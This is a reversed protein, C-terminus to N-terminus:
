RSGIAELYMSPPRGVCKANCDLGQIGMCASMTRPIIQHMLRDLAVYAIEIYSAIRGFIIFITCLARVMETLIAANGRALLFM